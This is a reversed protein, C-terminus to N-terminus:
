LCRCPFARVRSAITLRCPIGSPDAAAMKYGHPVDDTLVPLSFCSLSFIFVGPKLVRRAASNSRVSKKKNINKRCRYFSIENEYYLNLPMPIWQKGCKERRIKGFKNCYCIRKGWMSLSLKMIYFFAKHCASYLCFSLYCFYGQQDWIKTNQTNATVSWLVCM